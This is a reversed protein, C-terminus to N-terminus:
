SGKPKNLNGVETSGAQVILVKLAAAMFVMTPLQEEMTTLSRVTGALVVKSRDATLAPVVIVKSPWVVHSYPFM